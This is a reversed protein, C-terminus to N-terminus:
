NLIIYLHHSWLHWMLIYVFNFNRYIDHLAIIKKIVYRSDAYFWSGNDNLIYRCHCVLTSERHNKMLTGENMPHSEVLSKMSKLNLPSLASPKHNCSLDSLLEYFFIHKEKEGAIKFKRKKKM